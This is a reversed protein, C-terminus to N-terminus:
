NKGGNSPRVAHLVQVAVSRLPDSGISRRLWELRELGRPTIQYYHRGSATKGRKVLGLDALHALYTYARRTPHIGAAQAFTPVDM